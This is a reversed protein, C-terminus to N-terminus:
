RFHNLLCFDVAQNTLDLGLGGYATPVCLGLLGFEGCARWASRDFHSDARAGASGNAQVSGSALSRAASFLEEQEPAWSFDVSSGRPQRGHGRPRRM